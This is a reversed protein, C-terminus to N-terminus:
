FKKVKEFFDGAKRFQGSMTERFCDGLIANGCPGRMGGYYCGELIGGWLM